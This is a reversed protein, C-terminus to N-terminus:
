GKGLASQLDTTKFLLVMLAILYQAQYYTILDYGTGRAKAYNSFNTISQSVTPTVGSYSYLKSSSILGHFMGWHFM